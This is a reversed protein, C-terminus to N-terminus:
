PMNTDSIYRIFRHLLYFYPSMTIILLVFQIWKISPYFLHIILPLIVGIVLISLLIFLVLLTNKKLKYKEKIFELKYSYDKVNPIINKHIYEIRKFFDIVFMRLVVEHGASRKYFELWKSHKKDYEIQYKSVLDLINNKEFSWDSFLVRDLIILDSKWKEDYEVREMEAPILGAGDEQITLINSYPYTLPLLAIFNILKSCKEKILEDTIQQPNTKSIFFFALLNRLDDLVKKFDIAGDKHYEKHELKGPINYLQPNYIIQSIEYRLDNLKETYNEIREYSYFFYIIIAASIISLITAHITSLTPLISNNKLDAKQIRKM